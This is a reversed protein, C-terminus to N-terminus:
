PASTPRVDIMSGVIGAISTLQKTVQATVPKTRTDLLCISGIRTGDDTVIPHGVYTRIGPEGVVLANQAFRDDAKTDPVIFSAGDAITHNCFADARCVSNVDFGYSSKIWQTDRDIFTLLCVPFGTVDAAHRTILDFQRERVANGLEKRRLVVLRAAEDIPIPFNHASDGKRAEMESTPAASAKELSPKASRSAVRKQECAKNIKLFFASADDSLDRKGLCLSAGLSTLKYSIGINNAAQGSVVVKCLDTLDSMMELMGAGDIYPMCLDLTVLDPSLDRVLQVGAKADSAVGVVEFDARKDFAAEVIAQSTRSDDVIVVRKVKHAAAM